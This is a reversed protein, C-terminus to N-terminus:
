KRKSKKKKVPLSSAYEISMTLMEQFMPTELLELPVVVYEKMMMGERPEFHTIEPHKGVLKAKEEQSFRLFISTQFVGTFMNGNIFYALQGFMKRKECDISSLSESLLESLEHSPKEWNM